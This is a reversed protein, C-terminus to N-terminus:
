KEDLDLLQEKNNRLMKIEEYIEVAIDYNKSQVIRSSFITEFLAIIGPIFTWFFLAYLVGLGIQSFYFKHAGFSGLFFALVAYIGVSKNLRSFKYNFTNRENENLQKQLEIIRLDM